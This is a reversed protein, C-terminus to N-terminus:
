DKKNENKTCPKQIVRHVHHRRRAARNLYGAPFVVEQKGSSKLKIEMSVGKTGLYVQEM